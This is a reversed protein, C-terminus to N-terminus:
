IIEFKTFMQYCFNKVWFLFNVSENNILKFFNFSRKCLNLFQVDEKKVQSPDMCIAKITALLVFVFPHQGCPTTRLM